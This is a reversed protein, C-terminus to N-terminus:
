QDVEVDEEGGSAGDGVPQAGEAPHLRARHRGRLQAQERRGGAQARPEVAGGGPV